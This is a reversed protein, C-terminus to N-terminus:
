EVSGVRGHGYSVGDFRNLVDHALVGADIAVRLADRLETPHEEELDDVVLVVLELQHLVAVARRDRLLEAPAGPGCVGLSDSAFIEEVENVVLEERLELVQGTYRVVAALAHDAVNELVGVVVHLRALEHPLHDVLDVSDIEVVQLLPLM